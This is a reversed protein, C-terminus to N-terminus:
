EADVFDFPHDLYNGIGGGLPRTGQRAARQNFCTNSVVGTFYALPAGNEADALKKWQRKGAREGLLWFGRDAVCMSSVIGSAPDVEHKTMAALLSELEKGAAVESEFAVLMNMVGAVQPVVDAGVALHLQSLRKSTEIFRPLDDKRLKSKVEIRCLVSDFFYVAHSSISSALISPSLMPDFVVIDEQGADVMAQRHDVILGTGCAVGAPLWPVLLNSVLLERFRGKVGPHAIQGDITALDAVHRSDSKLRELVYNM